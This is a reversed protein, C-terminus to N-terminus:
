VVIRFAIKIKQLALGSHLVLRTVNINFM